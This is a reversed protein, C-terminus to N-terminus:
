KIIEYFNKFEYGQERLAEIIQPLTEATVKKAPADHLLVVISSKGQTTEKLRQLEFEPTLNNTEGDGNLANWDLSIIDNNKLIENAQKKIDAYKGGYLGGPFRFLHPEYEPVGIARRIEEVCQRDEKIVDEPSKYIESYVHTYGHSAIYHGEEYARKLLNERGEIRSGLVFFTAKINEKKLTDLIQNTVSSPGDDFTLFARKKDSKYIHKMNEKGIDTLQPIKAKREEEAKEQKREEIIKEEKSIEEYEKQYSEYQRHQSYIKSFSILCLIILIITLIVAIVLMMRMKVIKPKTNIKYIDLLYNKEENM